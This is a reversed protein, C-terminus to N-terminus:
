PLIIGTPTTNLHHFWHLNFSYYVLSHTLIGTSHDRKPHRYRIICCWRKRNTGQHRSVRGWIMLTLVGAWGLLLLRAEEDRKAAKELRPMLLKTLLFRDGMLLAWWFPSTRRAIILRFNWITGRQYIMRESDWCGLRCVCFILRISKEAERRGTGFENCRPRGRYVWVRPQHPQIQPHRHNRRRPKSRHHHHASLQLSGQSLIQRIRHRRRRCRRHRSPLEGKWGKNVTQSWPSLLHYHDQRLFYKTAMAIHSSVALRDRQDGLPCLWVFSEWVGRVSSLTWLAPSSTNILRLSPPGTAIWM